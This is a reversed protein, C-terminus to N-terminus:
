KRLKTGMEAIALMIKKFSESEGACSWGYLFAVAQKFEELSYDHERSFVIFHKALIEYRVEDSV